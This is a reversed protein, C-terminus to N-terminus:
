TITDEDLPHVDSYIYAKAPILKRQRSSVVFLYCMQAAYGHQHMAITKSNKKWYVQLENVLMDMAM